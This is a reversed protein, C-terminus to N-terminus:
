SRVVEHYISSLYDRMLQDGKETLAVYIRRADFPDPVREILGKQEMVRSWRIGTTPPVGAADCLGGISLKEWRSPFCFLALLMDWVPEGLLSNHFYRSRARRTDYITCALDILQDRAVPEGGRHERELLRAITLREVGREDRRITFEYRRGEEGDPPGIKERRSM